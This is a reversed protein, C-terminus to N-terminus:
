TKAQASALDVSGLLAIAISLLALGLFRSSSTM